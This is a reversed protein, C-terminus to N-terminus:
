PLEQEADSDDKTARPKSVSKMFFMTIGNRDFGMRISTLGAAKCFLLMGREFPVAGTLSNLSYWTYNFGHGKPMFKGLFVSIEHGNEEVKVGSALGLYKIALAKIRKTDVSSEASMSVITKMQTEKQNSTSKLDSPREPIQQAHEVQNTFFKTHEVVRRENPITKRKRRKTKLRKRPRADPNLRRLIGPHMIPNGAYQQFDFNPVINRLTILNDEYALSIHLKM